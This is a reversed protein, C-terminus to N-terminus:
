TSPKKSGEEGIPPRRPRSQPKMGPLATTTNSSMYRSETRRMVQFRKVAQKHEAMRKKLTRGTEGVYVQTCDQCPIEYVVGKKKEAPVPNKVKMLIQRMTRHPRFVVKVETKANLAKCTKEIKEKTYPMCMIQVKSSDTEEEKAKAEEQANKLTKIKTVHVIIIIVIRQGFLGEKCSM